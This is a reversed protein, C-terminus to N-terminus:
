RRKAQHSNPSKDLVSQDSTGDFDKVNSFPKCTGGLVPQYILTLNYVRILHILKGYFICSSFKFEVNAGVNSKVSFGTLATHNQM